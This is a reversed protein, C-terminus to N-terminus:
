RPATRIAGVHGSVRSGHMPRAHGMATLEHATVALPLTLRQYQEHATM